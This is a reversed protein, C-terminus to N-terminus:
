KAVKGRVGGVRAYRATLRKIFKEGFIGIVEIAARNLGHDGKTGPHRVFKLNVYEGFKKWYFYLFRGPNLTYIIHPKTDFERYIAETRTSGVEGSKWNNDTDAEISADLKGSDYHSRENRKYAIGIANISVRVEKALENNMAIPAAKFLAMLEKDGSISITLPSKPM